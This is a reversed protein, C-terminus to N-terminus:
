QQPPAPPTNGPQAPPPPPPRHDDDDDQMKNLAAAEPHPDGRHCTICTVARITDPRNSGKFNFYDKNIDSVMTMMHRAINKEPKDDSAFDPWGHPNEKNPAHCFTCKVGLAKKFGDMIAHLSDKSIDQPLVKLNKFEGDPKPEPQHAAIGLLVFAFMATIVFFQKRHLVKLM